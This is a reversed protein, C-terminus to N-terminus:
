KKREMGPTCLDLFVYKKIAAGLIKKDYSRRRSNQLPEQSNELNSGKM